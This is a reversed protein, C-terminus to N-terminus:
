SEDFGARSPVAIFEIQQVGFQSDATTPSVTIQIGRAAMVDMGFTTRYTGDTSTTAAQATCETTSSTYPTTVTVTLPAATMQIVTGIDGANWIVNAAYGMRQTQVSITPVTAVATSLTDAWVNASLLSLLWVRAATGATVLVGMTANGAADKMVAIEDFAGINATCPWTGYYTGASADFCYLTTCSGPPTATPTASWGGIVIVNLQQIYAGVGVYATSAPNGLYGPNADIEGRLQKWIAKPEEGQKFSWPRGINDLFYIADSTQVISAPATCGVSASVVDTSASTSFNNGPYGTLAGISTERFYYLYNNTAALGYLPASSMEILNWFDTYTDQVYGVRPEFPESWVIAVGPVPAQVGAYSKVIFYLSGGYVVPRGQATWAAAATDIPIKTAIIPTAGLTTGSWPQNVGDSFILEDAFSAMYIRTTPTVTNTITVGVPTVDTATTYGVGTLRYLKGNACAFRYVTGDLLQMTFMGGAPRGTGGLAMTAVSGQVFGPRAYLGTLSSGDPCYCSSANQARSPQSPDDFPEISNWVGTFPGATQVTPNAM